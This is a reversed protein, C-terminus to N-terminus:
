LKKKDDIPELGLSKEVGMEVANLMFEPVSNPQMCYRSLSDFASTNYIIELSKQSLCEYGDKDKELLCKVDEGNSRKLGDWGKLGYKIADLAIDVLDAIKENGSIAIASRASLKKKIGFPLPAIFWKIEGYMFTILDGEQLAIIKKEM